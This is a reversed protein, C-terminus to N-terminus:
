RPATLYDNIEDREAKRASIIRVIVDTLRIYQFTHIVVLYQGNSAQGLTLWREEFDSHEKDFITLALPDRLVSAALRFSIGHKAVNGRAKAADWEFYYVVQSM